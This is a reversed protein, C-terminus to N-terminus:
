ALGMDELKKECGVIVQVCAKSHKGIWGGCAGGTCTLPGTPGNTVCLDCWCFLVHNKTVGFFMLIKSFGRLLPKWNCWSTMNADQVGVVGIRLSGEDAGM